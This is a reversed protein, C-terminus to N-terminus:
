QDWQSKVSRDSFSHDGHAGDTSSRKAEDLAVLKAVVALM